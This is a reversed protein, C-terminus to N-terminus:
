SSTPFENSDHCGTEDDYQRQFEAAARSIRKRAAAPSIGLIQAVEEGSFGALRHLLLAERLPHSLGDLAQQIAEREECRTSGDPLRLAPTDRELLAPLWDLSVLHRLRRRRWEMRLQNRAIGYLWAAFAGNDALQDLNRFASLFTEQTLDVALEPNGTQRALYQLLPAHYRDVLVEFAERTGTSVGARAAIVADRDDSWVALAGSTM